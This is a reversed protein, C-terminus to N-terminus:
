KTGGAHRMRRYFANRKYKSFQHKKAHSFHKKRMNLRQYNTNPDRIKPKKTYSSKDISSSTVTDDDITQVVPKDSLSDM